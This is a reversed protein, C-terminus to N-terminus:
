GKKKRRLKQTWLRQVHRCLDFHALFGEETFTADRWLDWRCIQSLKSPEIQCGKCSYGTDYLRRTTRDYFPFSTAVMFRRINDMTDNLIGRPDYALGSPSATLKKYVSNARPRGVLFDTLGDEGGHVAIAARHAVSLSTLHRKRHAVIQESSYSGLPADVIPVNHMRLTTNTLGFATKADTKSIPMFEQAM